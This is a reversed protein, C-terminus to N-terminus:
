DVFLNFGVSSHCSKGQVSPFIKARFTQKHPVWVGDDVPLYEIKVRWVTRLWGGFPATEGRPRWPM